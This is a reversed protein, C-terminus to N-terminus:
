FLPLHPALAIHNSSVTVTEQLRQAHSRESFPSGQILAEGWGPSAPSSRPDPRDSCLASCYPCSCCCNWSSWVRLGRGPIWLRNQPWKRWRPARSSLCSYSMGKSLVPLVPPRGRWHTQNRTSKQENGAKLVSSPQLIILFMVLSDLGVLMLIMPSFLVCGATHMHTHGLHGGWTEQISKKMHM